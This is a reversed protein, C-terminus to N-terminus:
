CYTLSFCSDSYLLCFDSHYPEAGSECIIKEETEQSRVETEQKEDNSVRSSLITGNSQNASFKM